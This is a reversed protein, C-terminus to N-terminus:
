YNLRTEVLDNVVIRFKLITGHGDQQRELWRELGRLAYKHTPIDARLTIITGEKAGHIPKDFAKDEYTITSLSAGLRELKEKVRSVLEARKDDSMKGIFVSLTFPNMNKFMENRKYLKRTIHWALDDINWSPDELEQSGFNKGVWHRISDKVFDYLDAEISVSM